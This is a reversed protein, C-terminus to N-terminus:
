YFIRSGLQYTNIQTSFAQQAQAVTATADILLNNSSVNTVTIAQSQLFSVVQQVQDSTPAFLQTFQDPTLYQHYQASQPDYIGSLLADLDAQNRIQLGISLNLQQNADAAQLLRAQQVLPVVQGYLTIRQNLNAYVAMRVAILSTGILLLAVLAFLLNRVINRQMCIRWCVRGIYWCGLGLTGALPVGVM